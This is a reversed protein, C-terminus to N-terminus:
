EHHVTKFKYRGGAHVHADVDKHGPIKEIAFAHLHHLHQTDGMSMVTANFRIHDGRHLSDIVDKYETLVRESLSLGLDAGSSSDQDGPEMKLMISSSHYAFNINDEENLSVRIIYGDWSVGKYYYGREFKETAKQPSAVYAYYGCDRRFDNWQLNTM